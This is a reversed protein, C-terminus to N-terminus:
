QMFSCRKLNNVYLTNNIGPNCTHSEETKCLECCENYCMAEGTDIVWCGM